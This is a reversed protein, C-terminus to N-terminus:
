IALRWLQCVQMTEHHEGSACQRALVQDCANVSDLFALQRACPVMHGCRALPYVADGRIHQRDLQWALVTQHRVHSYCVDLMCAM